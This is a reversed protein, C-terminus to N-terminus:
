DKENTKNVPNKCNCTCPCCAGHDGHESVIKRDTSPLDKIDEIKGEDMQNVQVEEPKPQIVIPPVETKTGKKLETPFKWIFVSGSADTTVVSKGDPSFCAATIVGSHGVGVHTTIGSFIRNM